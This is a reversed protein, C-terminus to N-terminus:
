ENDITRTHTEGAIMCAEAYRRLRDTPTLTPAKCAQGFAEWAATRAAQELEPDTSV